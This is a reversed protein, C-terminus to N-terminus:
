YASAVGFLRQGGISARGRRDSLRVNRCCLLRSDSQAQPPRIALELWVFNITEHLIVPCARVKALQGPLEPYMALCHPLMQKAAADFESRFLPLQRRLLSGFCDLQVPRALRGVLKSAVVADTRARNLACERLQTDAESRAPVSLWQRSTLLRALITRVTEARGHDM